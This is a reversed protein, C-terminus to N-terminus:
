RVKKIQGYRGVNVQLEGRFETVYGNVIEIVDGESVEDGHPGWLAIRARGSKDSIVGNVVTTSGYRSKVNRPKELEEVKVVLNVRGLGPRLESINL